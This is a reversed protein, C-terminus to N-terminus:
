EPWLDTQARCPFRASGCVRRGAIPVAKQVGAPHRAFPPFTSQPSRVLACCAWPERTAAPPVALVNKGRRGCRSSTRAFFRALRTGAFQRLQSTCVSRHGSCYTWAMGPREQEGGAEVRGGAGGKFPPSNRVGRGPLSLAPHPNPEPRATSDGPNPGYGGGPARGARVPYLLLTAQRSRVRVPMKGTSRSRGESHAPLGSAGPPVVGAPHLAVQERPLRHPV